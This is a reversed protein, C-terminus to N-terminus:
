NFRFNRLIRAACVLLTPMKCNAMPSLCSFLRHSHRAVQGLAADGAPGQDEQAVRQVGRALRLLQAVLVEVLELLRREEQLAGAVLQGVQVQQARGELLVGALGRELDDLAGVVAELDRDGVAALRGLDM